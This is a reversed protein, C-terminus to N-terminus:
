TSPTSSLIISIDFFEGGIDVPSVSTLSLAVLEIDIIGDSGESPLEADDLRRVITDTGGPGIPDGTFDVIGIDPVGFADFDMFTGPATELYDSGAMITLASVPSCVALVLALLVRGTLVLKVSPM